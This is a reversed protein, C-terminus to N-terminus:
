WTWYAVLRAEGILQCRSLPFGVVFAPFRWCGTPCLRPLLANKLSDVVRGYLPPSGPPNLGAEVRALDSFSVVKAGNALFQEISESKSDHM